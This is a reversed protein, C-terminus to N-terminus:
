SQLKECPLLYRARHCHHLERLKRQATAEPSQELVPMVVLHSQQRQPISSSLCLPAPCPMRGVRFGCLELAEFGLSLWLM